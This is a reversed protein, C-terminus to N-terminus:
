VPSLLWAKAWVMFWCDFDISAAFFTAQLLLLVAMTPAMFFVYKAALWSRALATTGVNCWSQMSCTNQIFHLM